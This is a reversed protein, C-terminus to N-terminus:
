KEGLCSFTELLSGTTHTLRPASRLPDLKVGHKKSVYHSLRNLREQAQDPSRYNGERQLAHLFQDHTKKASYHDQYLELVKTSSVAKNKTTNKKKTGKMATGKGNGQKTTSSMQLGGPKHSYSLNAWCLVVLKEVVYARSSSSIVVPYSSGSHPVFHEHFIPHKPVFQEHFISCLTQQYTAGNMPMEVSVLVFLGPSFYNSCCYERQFEMIVM